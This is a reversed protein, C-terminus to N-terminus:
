KQYDFAFKHSHALPAQTHTFTSPPFLDKNQIPDDQWGRNWRVSITRADSHTNLCELVICDASLTLGIWDTQLLKYVHDLQLAEIGKLSSPRGVLASILLPHRLSPSLFYFVLNENHLLRHWKLTKNHVTFSLCFDQKIHFGIGRGKEKNEKRQM